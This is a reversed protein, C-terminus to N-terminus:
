SFSWVTRESETGSNDKSVVAAYRQEEAIFVWVPEKNQDGIEVAVDDLPNQSLATLCTRVRRQLFLLATGVGRRGLVEALASALNMM